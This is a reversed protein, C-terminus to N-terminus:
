NGNNLPNNIPNEPLADSWRDSLDQKPFQSFRSASSQFTIGNSDSGTWVVYLTLDCLEPDATCADRAVPCGGVPQGAADKSQLEGEYNHIVPTCEADSCFMCGDDWTIGRVVGGSADIIATLHPYVLDLTRDYYKRQFSVRKQSAVSVTLDVNGFDDNGGNILDQYASTYCSSSLYTKRFVEFRCPDCCAYNWKCSGVHFRSYEDVKPAFSLRLYQAGGVWNLNNAVHMCIVMNDGIELKASEAGVAGCGSWTINEGSVNQSFLVAALFFSSHFLSRLMM